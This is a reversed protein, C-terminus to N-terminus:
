KSRLARMREAFAERQEDTLERTVKAARITVLDEDSEVTVETVHYDDSANRPIRVDVLRWDTAESSLVRKLKTLMTPNTTTVRVTGERPIVIVTEQEEESLGAIRLDNVHTKHFELDKM